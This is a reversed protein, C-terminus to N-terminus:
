LAKVVDEVSTAVIVKAGVRRLKDHTALQLPTPKKGPQKVEIFLVTGGKLCMLDPVGFLSTVVLKIVLWDHLRLYDRIRSQIHKEM